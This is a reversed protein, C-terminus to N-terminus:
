HIIRFMAQQTRWLSVYELLGFARVACMAEPRRAPWFGRKPPSRFRIRQTGRLRMHELLGFARVACM